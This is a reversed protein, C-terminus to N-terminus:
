VAYAGLSQMHRNYQGIARDLLKGAAPCSIGLCKAVESRKSHKHYLRIVHKHKPSLMEMAANDLEVHERLCLETLPDVGNSVLGSEHGETWPGRELRIKQRADVAARLAIKQLWARIGAPTTARLKAGKGLYRAVNWWADQLADEAEDRTFDKHVLKWIIADGHEAYWRAILADLQEAPLPQITETEFAAALELNQTFMKAESVSIPAGRLSRSKKGGLRLNKEM